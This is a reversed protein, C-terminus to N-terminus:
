KAQEKAPWQLYVDGDVHDIEARHFEGGHEAALSCHLGFYPALTNCGAENKSNSM